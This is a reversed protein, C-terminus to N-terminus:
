WGHIGALMTLERGCSEFPRALRTVETLAERYWRSSVSRALREECRALSQQYEAVKEPSAPLKLCRRYGDVLAQTLLISREQEQQTQRGQERFRGELQGLRKKLSGM